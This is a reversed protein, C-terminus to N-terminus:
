KKSIDVQSIDVGIVSSCISIEKLLRIYSIHRKSHIEKLKLGAAMDQLISRQIETLRQGYAEIFQFRSDSIPDNSFDVTLSDHETETGLEESDVDETKPADEGKDGGRHWHDMDEWSLAPVLIGQPVYRSGDPRTRFANGPLRALNQIQRKTHLAAQNGMDYAYQLVQEPEFQSPKATSSSWAVRIDQAADEYLNLPVKSARLISRILRDDLRPKCQVLYDFVTGGDPFKYPPTFDRSHKSSM